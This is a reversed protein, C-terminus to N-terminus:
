IYEYTEQNSGPLELLSTFHQCFVAADGLDTSRSSYGYICTMQFLRRTKSAQIIDHQSDVSNASSASASEIYGVPEARVSYSLPMRLVGTSDAAMAPSDGGAAVYATVSRSEIRNQENTMPWFALGGEAVYAAVSLWGLQFRQIRGSRSPFKKKSWQLRGTSGGAQRHRTIM